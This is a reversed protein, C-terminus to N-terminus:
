YLLLRMCCFHTRKHFYRVQSHFIDLWLKPFRTFHLPVAEFGVMASLVILQDTMCGATVAIRCLTDLFDHYPGFYDELAQDYVPDIGQLM